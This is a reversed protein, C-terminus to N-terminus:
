PRGTEHATIAGSLRAGLTLGDLFASRQYLYCLQCTLDCVRDAEKDPLKELSRDIKRFAARIEKPEVATEEIYYYWLQELLEQGSITDAYPTRQSLHALLKNIYPNM